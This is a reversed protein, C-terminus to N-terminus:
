PRPEAETTFPWAVTSTAAWKDSITATTTATIMEMITRRAPLPHHWPSLGTEFFAMMWVRITAKEIKLM